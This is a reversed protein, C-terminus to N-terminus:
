QRSAWQIQVQDYFFDIDDVATQILRVIDDGKPDPMGLTERLNRISQGSTEWAAGLPQAFTMGESLGSSVEALAPDIQQLDAVTMRQRAGFLGFKRRLEGAALYVTILWGDSRTTTTEALSSMYLPLAGHAEAEIVPRVLPGKMFAALDSPVWSQPDLNAFALDNPPQGAAGRYDKLATM